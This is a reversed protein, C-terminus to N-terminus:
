ETATSEELKKDILKSFDEFSHAGRYLETGNIIFSPTSKIDHDASAKQMKEVLGQKLADNELCAKVLSEGAGSLKANQELKQRYDTGFAWDNQTEFLFKVFKFYRDEPLCRALMAGDMAPANLPFDTYTFKVKGTDIYAEKIKEFIENSFYACHSCSLSAFEEITVPASESGLVRPALAAAVDIKVSGAVDEPPVAESAETQTMEGAATEIAATQTQVSAAAMAAPEHSVTKGTGSSAFFGYAGIVLVVLVASGAILINKSAM